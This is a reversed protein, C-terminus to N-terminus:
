KVSWVRSDVKDSLIQNFFKIELVDGSPEVIIIKEMGRFDPQFSINCSKFQLDSNEALPTLYISNKGTIKVACFQKIRGLDGSMWAALNNLLDSMQKLKATDLTVVKGTEADFHTLKQSDIVTVTKLPTDTQWRLRGNRECVMSGKIELTMDMAKIRRTQIFDATTYRKSHMPALRLVLDGLEDAGARGGCLLLLLFVAAILGTRM